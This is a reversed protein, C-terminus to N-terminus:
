EKLFQLTADEGARLSPPAESCSEPKHKRLWSGCRRCAHNHGESARHSLGLGLRVAYLVCDAVLRERRESARQEKRSVRGHQVCEARLSTVSATARERGSFLRARLPRVSLSNCKDCPRELGISFSRLVHALSGVDVWIAHTNSDYEDVFSIHTEREVSAVTFHPPQEKPPLSSLFTM